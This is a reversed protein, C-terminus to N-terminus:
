PAGTAPGGAARASPTEFDSAARHHM